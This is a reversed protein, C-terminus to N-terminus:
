EREVNKLHFLLVLSLLSLMLIYQYYYTKKIYKNAEIESKELRNITEYIEQLKQAIKLGRM